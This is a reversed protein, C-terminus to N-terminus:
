SNMVKKFWPLGDLTYFNKSWCLRPCPKPLQTLFLQM